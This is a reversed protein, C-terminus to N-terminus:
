VYAGYFRDAVELCHFPLWERRTYVAHGWIRLKLGQERYDVLLTTGENHVRTGHRLRRLINERTLESQLLQNLRLDALLTRVFIPIPIFNTGSIGIQQVYDGYKAFLLPLIRMPVPTQYEIGQPPMRHHVFHLLMDYGDTDWGYRIPTGFTVIDIKLRRLPHDSTSLIEQVEKWAPMDVHRLIWPTFFSRAATFFDALSEEDAGLLNTLLSFVNGGHSHGWLLVRPTERSSQNESFVQEAHRALVAILRIAGDARGIHNNQSSWNFFRVPITQEAGTALGEEFERSYRPTFNGAEGAFLNVTGKGLRAISGSIRPAIRELETVFGLSDSGSFTGHVCYIATVGARGFVEGAQRLAEDYEASSPTTPSVEPLM